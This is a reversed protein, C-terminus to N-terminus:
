KTSVTRSKKAYVPHFAPERSVGLVNAAASIGVIRAM